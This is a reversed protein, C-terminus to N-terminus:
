HSLRLVQVPERGEGSRLVLLNPSVHYSSYQGSVHLVMELSYTVELAVHERFVKIYGTVLILMLEDPEHEVYCVNRVWSFLPVDALM